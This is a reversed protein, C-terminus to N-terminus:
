GPAWWRVLAMAMEGIVFLAQAGGRKGALGRGSESLSKGVAGRTAKWAPALGFIIGAVVSILFSFLLVTVDLGIDNARPMGEPISALAARTGLKALGLGLVGGILGLLISETWLQRIVRSHEAGLAIRIAFEQQRSTSRALLLNAVNGCSILLVFVVAVLLVILIPRMDGVMEDKLSILYAKRGSDIDPYAMALEHSVRAMDDRAQQLTVGPKLRGIGDLGWGAGRENYFKPENYEGVPVYVDNMGSDRQFNQIRLHFNSPVVGVVTRGVGDLIM